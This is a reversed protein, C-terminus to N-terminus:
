AVIGSYVFNWRPNGNALAIQLLTTSVRADQNYPTIFPRPTFYADPHVAVYFTDMTLGYIRGSPCNKTYTLPRGHVKIGDFMVDAEGTSTYVIANSMRKFVYGMVTESCFLTDIGQMDGPSAALMLDFLDEVGRQAFSPATETVVQSTGNFVNRHFENGSTARNLGACTGTAPNTGVFYPIGHLILSDAVVSNDQKWFDLVIGRRFTKLTQNTKQQLIRFLVEQGGGGIRESFGDISTSCAYQAWDVYSRTFGEQPRTQFTQYRSYAGFTDNALYELEIDLTSGTSIKKLRGSAVAKDEDYGQQGVGLLRKLEPLATHIQDAVTSSLLKEHVMSLIM